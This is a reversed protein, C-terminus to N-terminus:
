QINWDSADPLLNNDIGLDFKTLPNLSDWLKKTGQQQNLATLVAGLLARVRPPYALAYDIMAQRQLPNIQGVRDKFIALANGMDVDPIQKLDKMADLFGLLQYNDDTVEVYSKVATAKVSGTNVFIRRNRSAIKMVAPVQTTLGLQNYLYDGTIYATRKGNQYLYPKLLQEEGPKKEGFITKKPKYFIGKSLKKIVGKKQLRELAKAATQYDQKALALQGYGFSTDEPLGQIQQNVQDSISTMQCTYRLDIRIDLKKIM